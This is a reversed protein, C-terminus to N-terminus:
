GPIHPRATNTPQPEMSGYLEILFLGLVANVLVVSGFVVAFIVVEHLARREAAHLDQRGRVIPGGDEGMAM